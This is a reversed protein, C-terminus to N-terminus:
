NGSRRESIERKILEIFQSPLFRGIDGSIGHRVSIKNSEQEKKGIIVMYPVKACQADAVKKGIKEARYDGEVRLGERRLMDEIEETYEIQEDTITLLRVQVPSLWLPLRGAYHEILAGIFREMSGLVVRHIMVPRHERGDQAVYAIGFREPLNFDVQITPGQWSRGIADKLKIDIKPGYFVGEGKDIQFTLGEGKLVSYLIEEANDWLEKTGVFREPRTSLYVEYESFGFVSLMRQSFRIVGRIEDELQDDTCFIHADDQTFGRVRLLGHLVGSREYRYVTGLEFLRMPLEKYSRTKNKYILIHGPCNMPKLVYEEDEKEIFFMNETYYETHGSTNWLSRKLIHPTAVEIYGEKRHEEKLFIAIEDYLVKGYPHYFILGSGAEDYTSFLGLEQGLRRHDRRKAEEIRDLYEDLEKQESFAIGYVRTLQPNKENGRWYAGATKLLKIAKVEKTSNIHPGKCLDVFEGSKYFSVEEDPIEALLELKYAQNERKLFEEAKEKKMTIKEFLLDERVIKEMEDEIRSLDEEKIPLDFDYYFGDAIAPGIGLRVNGFLRRVAQAMIHAASHWLASNDKM